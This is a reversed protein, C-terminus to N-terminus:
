NHSASSEPSEDVGQEGRQKWDSWFTKLSFAKSPKEAYRYTSSLVTLWAGRLVIVAAILTFPVYQKPLAPYITRYVAHSYFLFGLLLSYVGLRYYIWTNWSDAEKLWNAINWEGVAPPTAMSMAIGGYFYAIDSRQKYFIWAALLLLVSGALVSTIHEEWLTKFFTVKDLNTVVRDLVISAFGVCFTSLVGLLTMEKDLYDLYPKCDPIAESMVFVM